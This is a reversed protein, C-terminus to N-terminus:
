RGGFFTPESKTDLMWEGLRYNELRTQEWFPNLSPEIARDGVPILKVPEYAGVHGGKRRVTETSPDIRGKNTVRLTTGRLLAQEIETLLSADVEESIVTPGGVLRSLTNREM